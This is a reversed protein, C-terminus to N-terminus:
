LLRVVLAVTWLLGGILGLVFAAVARQPVAVGLRASDNRIGMASVAVYPLLPFLLISGAVGLWFLRRARRDLAAIDEATPGPM